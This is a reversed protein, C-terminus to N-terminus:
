AARPRLSGNGEEILDLLAEDEIQYLRDEECGNVILQGLRLDPRAEWAEQLRELLAPIRAPDRM